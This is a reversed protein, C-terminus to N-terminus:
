VGISAAWGGECDRHSRSLIGALKFECRDGVGILKVAKRVTRSHRKHSLNDGDSLLKPPLPNVQNALSLVPWPDGFFAVRRRVLATVSEILSLLWGAGALGWLGVMVVDYSTQLGPGPRSTLHGRAVCVGGVGVAVM